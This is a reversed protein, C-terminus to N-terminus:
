KNSLWNQSFIAGPIWVMIQRSFKINAVIRGIYHWSQMCSCRINTLELFFATMYCIQVHYFISILLM